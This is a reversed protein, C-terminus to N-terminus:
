VKGAPYKFCSDDVAVDVKSQIFLGKTGDTFCSSSMLANAIIYLERERGSTYINIEYEIFTFLIALAGLIVFGIQILKIFTATLESQGKM